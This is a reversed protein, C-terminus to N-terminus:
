NARGFLHQGVMDLQVLIIKLLPITFSGQPMSCLFFLVVGEETLHNEGM